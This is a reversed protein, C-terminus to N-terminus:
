LSQLARLAALAASLDQGWPAAPLPPPDLPELRRAAGEEGAAEEGAAAGGDGDGDGAAAEVAGEFLCPLLGPAGRGACFAACFAKSGNAGGRPTRPPDAALAACAARWRARM